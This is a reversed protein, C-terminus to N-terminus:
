AAHHEHNSEKRFLTGKFFAKPLSVAHEVNFGRQNLSSIVTEPDVKEGFVWLDLKEEDKLQKAAVMIEAMPGPCRYRHIVLIFRQTTNIDSFTLSCGQDLKVIQTLTFPVRRKGRLFIQMPIYSSLHLTLQTDSPQSRIMVAIMKMQDAVSNHRLNIAYPPNTPAM